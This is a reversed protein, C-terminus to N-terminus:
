DISRSIGRGILVESLRSAVLRALEVPVANGLQRMSETWSGAFVWEDPFTQLRACERVSFYRLSGDPLRLTNEGGPVGHDGAKLTKAPEDLWSGTHGPYSRAGPHLYHNEVKNSSEGIELRPLDCIADRVTRWPLLEGDRWLCNLADIKAHARWPMEPRHKKAVRHRQWYEGTIWQDYLLADEGHTVEPFSFAIGLDSRVGIILVRYRHQPVGYDAADVLRYVVNYQLGNRKGSTVAKELRALHSTWEEEGRIRMDPYCLQHLIYSYYNAFGRRLLGRVNELIFAKPQIERVARIAHPFMNREDEQGLHKGGLSFPQCPPGAVVCDVDGNHLSFDYKSVDTQIVNWDGVHGSGSGANLRLTACADTDWEIVARHDFGARATGLAMGGGGAFFEISKVRCIKVLVGLFFVSKDRRALALPPYFRGTNSKRKSQSKPSIPM